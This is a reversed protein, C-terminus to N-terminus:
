FPLDPESNYANLFETRWENYPMINRLDNYSVSIHNLYYVSKILDWLASEYENICIEDLTREKHKLGCEFASSMLKSHIYNADETIKDGNKDYLDFLLRDADVIMLGVNLDETKYVFEKFYDYVPQANWEDFEGFLESPLDICYMMGYDQDTGYLHVNDYRRANFHTALFEKQDKNLEM